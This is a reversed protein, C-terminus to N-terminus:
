YIRYNVRIKSASNFFCFVTSVQFNENKLSFFETNLLKDLYSSNDYIM